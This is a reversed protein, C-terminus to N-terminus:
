RVGLILSAERRSMKDEFGGKYMQKAWFDAGMTHHSSKPDTSSTTKKKSASAGTSSSEEDTNSNNNKTETPTETGDEKTTKAFTQLAFRAVLAAGAVSLGAILITSETPVTSHFSRVCINNYNNNSPRSLVTSVSSPLSTFISSSRLSSSSSPVSSATPTTPYSLNRTVTSSLSRSSPYQTSLLSSSSTTSSHTLLSSVTTSLSAPVLKGQHSVPKGMSTISQRFLLSAM